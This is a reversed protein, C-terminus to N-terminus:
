NRNGKLNQNLKQKRSHGFRAKVEVRYIVGKAVGNWWGNM